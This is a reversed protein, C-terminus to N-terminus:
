DSLQMAKLNRIILNFLLLGIVILILVSFWVGIWGTGRVYADRSIEIYYRAPIINSVLSLPFPINSLPYIMGSLLLSTLFGLVIGGQIASTQDASKAGILLGFCVADVLFIVTSIIFPTPDGAFGFQWILSGSVMILIAQVIGIISYALLKGLIMETATLTSAYVQLITGDVKEKVMAIASLLSPFVWLVLGYLGPIIYLPEQRGPNFWLRVRAVIKNDVTQLQSVQLFNTTTSRITNKIVRANNVDSGDVLVQINTNLDSKIQSSFDPPIIVAAKAVGRDIIAQPNNLFSDPLNESSRPVFKNTAFLSEIYSRSTDTMDLDQVYLPINKAELRIAFGFIILAMFPLVFALAVTFRDRRFQALEKICQSIVRNM